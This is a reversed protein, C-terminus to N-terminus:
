PLKNPLRFHLNGRTHGTGLDGAGITVANTSGTGSAVAVGWITQRFAYFDRERFTVARILPDECSSRDKARCDDLLLHMDKLVDPVKGYYSHCLWSSADTGSADVVDTSCDNSDTEFLSLTDGLRSRRGHLFKSTFLAWDDKSSYVTFHPCKSQPNRQHLDHVLEDFRKREEDAAAFIVNKLTAHRTFLQEQQLNRLAQILARNGM